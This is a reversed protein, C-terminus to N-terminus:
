RASLNRSGRDPELFGSRAYSRVQGVSLDLMKAVTKANYVKM